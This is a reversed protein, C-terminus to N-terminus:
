LAMDLFPNMDGRGWYYSNGCIRCENNKINSPKLEMDRHFFIIRHAVKGNVNFNQMRNLFENISISAVQTTFTVVSPAPNGEGLVYAEEKLSEYRDPSNRKLNESYALDANIVGKTLLCDSGPFLYSIRGQLDQIEPPDNKVSIVLGMDIVPTLYFYAFRNLLIRGANDDTCGFIIDSSKLLEISTNTSVWDSNVDVLTKLGISDISNKLVDVKNKGVDKITAGHLRNLNSEEVSDKDIINITGVGLRALMLATASGTAGAGVVTVTLKSLDQVLAKGFALQQRNFSEPTDYNKLRNPYWLKINEGIVKILDFSQHELNSKWVRGIVSGDPMLILSGHPRDGGNRNFALQFLEYEGKDDTNSFHNFGSPHNHILVVAFGKSETKKLIKIFHNNNWSVVSAESKLLQDDELLEIEKTIFNELKNDVQARGCILFGVREKGDPRLLHNKLQNYFDEKITISYKM